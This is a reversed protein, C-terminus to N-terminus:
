WELTKSEFELLWQKEKSVYISAHNTLERVIVPTPSPAQPASQPFLLLKEQM